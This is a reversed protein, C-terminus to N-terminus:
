LIIDSAIDKRAQKLNGPHDKLHYGYGVGTYDLKTIGRDAEAETLTKTELEKRLERTRIEYNAPRKM